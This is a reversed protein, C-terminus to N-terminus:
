ASCHDRIKRCLALLARRTRAVRVLRALLAARQQKPCAHYDCLSALMGKRNAMCCCSRSRAPANDPRTETYIDKRNCQWQAAIASTRMARERWSWCGHDLANRSRAWSSSALKHALSAPGDATASTRKAVSSRGVCRARDGRRRRLCVRNTAKAGHSIWPTVRTSGATRTAGTGLLCAPAVAVARPRARASAGRLPWDDRNHSQRCPVIRVM